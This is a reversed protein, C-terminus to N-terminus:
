SNNLAKMQYMSKGAEKWAIPFKPGIHAQWFPSAHMRGAKRGIIEFCADRIKKIQRVTNAMSLLNWKIYVNAQKKGLLLSIKGIHAQWFLFAPARGVHSNGVKRGFIEFCADRIKKINWVINAMSLLKWKIYVNAQKTGPFLSSQCSIRFESGLGRQIYAIIQFVTWYKEIRYVSKSLWQWQPDMSIYITGIPCM